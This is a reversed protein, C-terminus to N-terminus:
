ECQDPKKKGLIYSFVMSMMWFGDWSCWMVSGSMRLSRVKRSDWSPEVRVAGIIMMSGPSLRDSMSFSIPKEM